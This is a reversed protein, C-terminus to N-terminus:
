KATKNKNTRPWITSVSAAHINSLAAKRRTHTRSFSIRSARNMRASCQKQTARPWTCAAPRYTIACNLPSTPSGGTTIFQGTAWAGQLAAFACCPGERRITLRLSCNKRAGKLESERGRLESREAYNLSISELPWM